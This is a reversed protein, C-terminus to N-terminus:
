FKVGLQEYMYIYFVRSHKIVRYARAQSFSPPLLSLSLSVAHSKLGLADTFNRMQYINISEKDTNEGPISFHDIFVYDM